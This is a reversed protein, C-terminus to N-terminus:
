KNKGEDHARKLSCMSCKLPLHYHILEVESKSEEKKANTLDAIKMTADIYEKSDPSMGSRANLLATILADKSTAERIDKAKINKKQSEYSAIQADTLVKKTSEVRSKFASSEVMDSQAKRLASKTWTYGTRVCVAWADSLSWGCAILDACAMDVVSLKAKKAETSATSTIGILEKSM